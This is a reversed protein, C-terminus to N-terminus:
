ERATIEMALERAARHKISRRMFLIQLTVVGASGIALGILLGLLFIDAGNM